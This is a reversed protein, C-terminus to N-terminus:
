MGIRIVCYLDDYGVVIMDLLDVAKEANLQGDHLRCKLAGGDSMVGMSIEQPWVMQTEHESAQATM